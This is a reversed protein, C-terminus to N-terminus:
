DLSRFIHLLETKLTENKDKAYWGHIVEAFKDFPLKEHDLQDKYDMVMKQVPAPRPGWVFLENGTAEDIAVFKPISRAGNTLYKNILDPNEDRYVLQLEVNAAADALKAIYPINQAADGCWAETIIIWKMRNGHAEVLRILENDLVITKNLRVMRRFNLYTYNVLSESQNPGSTAKKSVLNNLERVYEQYTLVKQPAQKLPNNMNASYMQISFSWLVDK